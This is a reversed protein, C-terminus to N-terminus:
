VPGRVLAAEAGTYRRRFRHDVYRASRRTLDMGNFWPRVVDRTQGVMPIPHCSCADRTSNAETHRFAWCTHGGHVVPRLKGFTSRGHDSRDRRDPRANIKAVHRDMLCDCQRPGNDFGVMSVHVAAGDLVWERDSKAWFIDGTQKIRELVKRNAGGRIAQTALLGAAKSQRARDHARAKEFWYCVLDAERPVRDDYLQLSADVYEDGLEAACDSAAWSRRIAM